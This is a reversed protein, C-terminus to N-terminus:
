QNPIGTKENAWRQANGYASFTYEEIFQGGDTYICDYSLGNPYIVVKKTGSQVIKM